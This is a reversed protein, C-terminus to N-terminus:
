LKKLCEILADIKQVKHEKTEIIKGNQMTIEAQASVDARCLVMLNKWREITPMYNIQKKNMKEIHKELNDETIEQGFQNIRGFPDEILNWTIFDDHHKIYFIIEDIEEKSYDLMELIPKAILVSKQAHGYFVLRGQKKKAVEPKGIDHFFAAVKLLITVEEPLEDVTHLIHQFLDYCHHPNCQQYGVMHGVKEGLLTCIQTKSYESWTDVANYLNREFEERKM